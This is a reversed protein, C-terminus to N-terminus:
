KNSSEGENEVDREQVILLPMLVAATISGLEALMPDFSTCELHILHHLALTSYKLALDVVRRLAALGLLSREPDIIAGVLRDAVM